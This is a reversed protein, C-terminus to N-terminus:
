RLEWRLCVIPRIRNFVNWFCSRSTLRLKLHLKGQFTRTLNLNVIDWQRLVNDSSGVYLFDEFINLCHITLVDTLSISNAEFSDISSDWIQVQVNDGGSVVLNRWSVVARLKKVTGKYQFLPEASISDWKVVTTDYSGTFLRQPLYAFSLVPLKHYYPFTKTIQGNRINWKILVNDLGASFLDGDYVAVALVIQTHALFSRVLDGSNENWCLISSDASGSIILDEYLFISFASNTHGRYLTVPTGYV